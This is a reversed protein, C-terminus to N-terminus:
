NIPPVVSYYVGHAQLMKETDSLTSVIFLSNDINQRSQNFPLLRLQIRGQIIFYPLLVLGLPCIIRHAM